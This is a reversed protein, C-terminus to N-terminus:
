GATRRNILTRPIYLGLRTARSIALARDTVDLMATVHPIRGTVTGEALQM